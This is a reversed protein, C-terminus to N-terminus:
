VRDIFIPSIWAYQNNKQRVEVHYIDTDKEPTNDIITESFRYANDPAAKHVVFAESNYDSMHTSYSRCLLNAMPLATKKGNVTVELRLNDGGEVEVCVQATCPHLTTQNKTTQATFAVAGDAKQRLRNNLRNINDNASLDSQPALISRGRFRPEASVIDGNVAKIEGEWNYDTNDRGWGVEVAVKYRRTGGQAYPDSYTRFPKLNKYLTVRDIAGGATLETKIQRRGAKIRSGMPAGNVTFDCLMKDGTLAYTRGQAIADFIADRTLAAASVALRGDGYSGPYGAHHDTSAVFGFRKGQRLGEFVTNRGDRPGMTHLFPYPADDSMSCGHKSFVEVVPSNTENFADWNIGRYGPTYGIHHPIVMAKSPATVRMLEEPSGCPTLPLNDDTSLIHHDGYRRSHMEYGQFTVFSGECNAAAVTARIEDWHLRLREFGEKHYTVLYSLEPTEKPIDPWMAHGTVCCFDLQTKAANLANELSGYGYTIGCHNHIDGFYIQM